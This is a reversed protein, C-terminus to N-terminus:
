CKLYHYIRVWVFWIFLGYLLRTFRKLSFFFIFLFILLELFVFAISTLARAPKNSAPLIDWAFLPCSLTILYAFASLIGVAHFSPIENLLKWWKVMKK